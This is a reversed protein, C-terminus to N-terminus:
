RFTTRSLVDHLERAIRLREESAQRREQEEHARAREARVKVMEAYHEARVKAAGGLLITVSLGAALVVAVRLDAHAPQPLGLPTAFVWAVLVYALFGAAAAGAAARRLGKKAVTFLAIVPAVTYSWHPETLLGFGISSAGAIVLVQVPAKFRVALSLPGLLLLAYAVFHWRGTAAGAASWNGLCHFLLASIVAGGPWPQRGARSHEWPPRKEGQAWPPRRDRSPGDDPRPPLGHTM